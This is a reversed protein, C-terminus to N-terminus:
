ITQKQTTSKFTQTDQPLISVEVQTSTPASDSWSPHHIHVSYHANQISVRIDLTNIAVGHDTLLQALTKFFVKAKDDM